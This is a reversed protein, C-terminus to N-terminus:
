GGGAGTKYRIMPIDSVNGRRYHWTVINTLFLSNIVARCPTFGNYIKKIMKGIMAKTRIPEIAPARIDTSV